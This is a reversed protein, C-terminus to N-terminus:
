NHFEILFKVKYESVIGGFAGAINGRVLTPQSFPDNQYFIHENISSYYEYASKSYSSVFLELSSTIQDSQNFLGSVGFELFQSLGNFYRDSFMIHQNSFRSQPDETLIFDITELKVWESLQVTDNGEIKKFNRKIRLGYFNNIFSPDDVKLKIQFFNQRGQFIIRSTDQILCDLTDPVHENVWYTKGKHTLKFLYSKDAVPKIVSKYQGETQHNMVDLIQTDPNFVEIIADSVWNPGSNDTVNQTLSLRLSMLSDTSLGGDVVLLPPKNDMNIQIERKCSILLAAIAIYLVSYRL